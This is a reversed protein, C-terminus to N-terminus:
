LTSTLTCFTEVAPKMASHASGTRIPDETLGSMGPMPGTPAWTRQCTPSFIPPMNRSGILRLRQSHVASLAFAAQGPWFARQVGEKRPAHGAVVIKSAVLIGVNEVVAGTAM